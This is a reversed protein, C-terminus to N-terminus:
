ARLWDPPCTVVDWNAPAVIVKGPRHGLRAGWWSYTSNAIIFHACESMLFLDCGPDSANTDDSVFEARRLIEDPLVKEAHPRDNSFVFFRPNATKRGLEEMAARYYSADCVSGITARKDPLLIDGGRVHVAVSNTAAIREHSGLGRYECERKFVLRCYLSETYEYRQYFGTMYIGFLYKAVAKIAALRIASGTEMVVGGPIAFVDTLCGETPSLLYRVREGRERLYEGYAYQFMQNGLGAFLKILKM